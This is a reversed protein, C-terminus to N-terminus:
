PVPPRAAQRPYRTLEEYGQGGPLPGVDRGGLEVWAHADHSTAHRPLALILEAPDGQARLLRYLVLSRILCRPHWPGIRLGRSVARSLLAVPRHKRRTPTGLAAVLEPLPQRWLGVRVHAATAWVLCLLAIKGPLTLPPESPM